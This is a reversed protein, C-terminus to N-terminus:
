VIHIIPAQNTRRVTFPTVVTSFTTPNGQFLVSVTVPDPAQKEPIFIVYRGRSDVPAQHAPVGVGPDHLLVEFAAPPQGTQIDLLGYVLTDEAAFPFTVARHLLIEIPFPSPAPVIRRQPAYHPFRFRAEYAGSPVEPFVFDGSLNQVAPFFNRTDRARFNKHPAEVAPPQNAARRPFLVVPKDSARVPTLRRRNSYDRIAFGVIPM